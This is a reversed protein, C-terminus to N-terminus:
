TRVTLKVAGEANCALDKEISWDVYNSVLLDLKGDKDYDFWNASGPFPMPTTLKMKASVDEFRGGDINRYLVCRGLATILIDQWGDNDYDAIAAGIGYATKALGAALTVDSFTGNQNNHYLAPTAPTKRPSRAFDMSNVLLIDQWGDNDYDLFACGSGFREPFISKGPRATTTNSPSAPQSPSM